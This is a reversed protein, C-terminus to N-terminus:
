LLHVAAFTKFGNRGPARANHSVKQNCQSLRWKQHDRRSISERITKSWNATRQRSESANPVEQGGDANAFETKAAITGM